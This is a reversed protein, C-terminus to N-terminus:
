DQWVDGKHRMAEQARFTAVSQFRLFDLAMINEVRMMCEDALTVLDDYLGVDCNLRATACTAAVTSVSALATQSPVLGHFPPRCPVKPHGVSM